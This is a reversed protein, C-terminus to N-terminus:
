QGRFTNDKGYRKSGRGKTGGEVGMRPANRNGRQLTKIRSIRQERTLLEDDDEDSPKKKEKIIKKWSM